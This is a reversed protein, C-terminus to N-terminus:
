IFLGLIPVRPRLRGIALLKWNGLVLDVGSVRVIRSMRNLDVLGSCIFTHLSAGLQSLRGRIATKGFTVM